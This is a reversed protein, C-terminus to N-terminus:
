ADARYEFHMTNDHYWKGGWIFGHRDFIIVIEFPLKNRYPSIFDVPKSWRWYDTFVTSVDIAAALAHM